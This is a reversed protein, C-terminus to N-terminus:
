WGGDGYAPEQQPSSPTPPSLQIQAEQGWPDHEPSPPDEPLDNMVYAEQQQSQHRDLAEQEQDHAWQEEQEYQQWATDYSPYPDYEQGWPEESWSNYGTDWEEPFSWEYAHPEPWASYQGATSYSGSQTQTLLLQAYTAPKNNSQIGSSATRKADIAMTYLGDTIFRANTAAM